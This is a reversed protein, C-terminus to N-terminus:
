LADVRLRGSLRPGDRPREAFQVQSLPVRADDDVGVAGNSGAERRPQRFQRREVVDHKLRVVEDEVLKLAPQRSQATKQTSASKLDVQRQLLGSAEITRNPVAHADPCVEQHTIAPELDADRM